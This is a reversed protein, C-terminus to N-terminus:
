ASSGGLLKCCRGFRLFQMSKSELKLFSLTCLAGELGSLPFLLGGGGVGGRKLRVNCSRM